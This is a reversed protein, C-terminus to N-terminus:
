SKTAQIETLGGMYPQLAEPIRVSGDEQQYQELVAVVTRSLALGSGNLTHALVPKAKPAPRYRIKGRRAQFDGMWSCSSIERYADQGPLWVELDYTKKASFGTDGACLLMVRYHLGLRKLVEEAHSTLLELQDQAQEPRCFRVLEVKGFQHQRIYGRTDRGYSGAESRFCPAYATYGLPLQEPELIEGAHLNTLQVEATPSLYLPRAGEEESGHTSTKFVDEEFKPLQGTVQLADPKVLVPLWAERYGHQDVHLDVMFNMLARELRAGAGHLVTFRAGGIRAGREVDLVGLAAGLDVHDRPQFAMTPKEGVVRIQQNSSETKGDPVDEAPLNPIGLAADSLDQEVKRHQDELTKISNGVERMADRQSAFEPSSKDKISAMASSVENRRARLAEVETLLQRRQDALRVIESLLAEDHFGRRQLQITVEQLQDTLLRLDLM